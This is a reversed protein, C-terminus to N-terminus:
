YFIVKVNRKTTEQKLNKDNELSNFIKTMEETKAVLILNQTELEEILKQDNVREKKLIDTNNKSIIIEENLIKNEREKEDILYNFEDQKTRILKDVNVM